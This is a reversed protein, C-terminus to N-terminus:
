KSRVKFIYQANISILILSIVLISFLQSEGTLVSYVMFLVLAFILLVYMLNYASYLGNLIIHREGEDAAELLKNMYNKDNQNPLNRDPYVYRMSNGTMISVISSFFVLILSIIILPFVEETIVGICLIVISLILATSSALSVDSYKKYLWDDRLDEEEGYLTQSAKKKITALRILSFICLFFSIIAFIVMTETSFDYIPLTFSGGLLVYGLFGGILAGYGLQKLVRM